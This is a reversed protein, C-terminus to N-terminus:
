WGVSSFSFSDVFPPDCHFHLCQPYVSVTFSDNVATGVCLHVSFPLLWGMSLIHVHEPVGFQLRVREALSLVFWVLGLLM